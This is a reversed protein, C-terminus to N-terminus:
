EGCERGLGSDKVGGFPTQATMTNYCNCFVSGSKLNDAFYQM